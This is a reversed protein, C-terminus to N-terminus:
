CGIVQTVSQKRHSPANDMILLNNKYKGYVFEQVFLNFSNKGFSFTSSIMMVSMSNLSSCDRFCFGVHLIKINKPIMAFMPM